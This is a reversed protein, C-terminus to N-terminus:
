NNHRPVFVASKSDHQFDNGEFEKNQSHPSSFREPSNAMNDLISVSSMFMLCLPSSNRMVMSECFGHVLAPIVTAYVYFKTWGELTRIRYLNYCLYILVVGGVLCGIYGMEVYVNLYINLMSGWRTSGDELSYYPIFGIGQWPILNEEFFAEWRLNRGSIDGYDLVRAHEGSSGFILVLFPVLCLLFVLFYVARYKPFTINYYCIFVLGSLALALFSTRSGSLVTFLSGIAVLVFLYGKYQQKALTAALLFITLACGVGGVGNPNIENIVLRGDADFNRIGLLMFLLCIVASPLISIILKRLRETDNITAGILLFTVPHILGELKLSFTGEESWFVSFLMLLLLILMCKTASHLKIRGMVFLVATYSFLFFNTAHRFRVIWDNAMFVGLSALLGWSILLYLFDERSKCIYKDWFIYVIGIAIIAIVLELM